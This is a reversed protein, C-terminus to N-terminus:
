YLRRAIFGYLEQHLRMMLLYLTGSDAVRIKKHIRSKEIASLNRTNINLGTVSHKRIYSELEPLGGQAIIEFIRGAFLDKITDSFIYGNLCIDNEPDFEDQFFCEVTGSVHFVVDPDYMYIKSIKNM